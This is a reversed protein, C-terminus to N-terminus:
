RSTVGAVASPAGPRRRLVTAGAAVSILVGGIGAGLLAEPWAFGEPRTVVIEAPAQSGADKAGPELAPYAYAAHPGAATAALATAVTLSALTRRPM